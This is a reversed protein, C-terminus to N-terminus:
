RLLVLGLFSAAILVRRWSFPNGEDTGPPRTWLVVAGCTGHQFQPPVQSPSYVELAELDGTSILDDIFRAGQSTRRGDIFVAPECGRSLLIRNQQGSQGPQVRIGAMTRFLDTVRFPNRREIDDRSMFRGMGRDKREYFGEMRPHVEPGADVVVPSLEIPDPVMQIELRVDEDAPVEMHHDVSGYGVHQIELVYPGEDAAPIYFVGEPDTIATHTSAELDGAPRLQVRAAELAEGTARDTVEGGVSVQSDAREGARPADSALVESPSALSLVAFATGIATARGLRVM